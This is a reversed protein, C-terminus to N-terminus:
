RRQCRTCCFTSRGAQVLRTIRGGCRPCPEGERDYVRWSEAEDAGATEDTPRPAYYRGPRSDTLVLQIADRLRAVRARSLSSAPSVPHIRSEWLAESAYINGIGAVVKQNLLVPKIPGNRRQLAERLVEATFGDELPEPGLDPPVFTGVLHLTVVSLARSDMLSVRGGGTTEIRVREHRRPEDAATGIDWDGNMRFHVELVAGSGLQVLQIKARREVSVVREGALARQAAAPLSRRQSAHFVTVLAITHGVVAERLRHAAFEVEPLEPM